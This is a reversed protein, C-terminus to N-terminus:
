QLMYVAGGNQAINMNFDSSSAYLRGGRAIGIAGGQSGNNGSFSVQELTLSSSGVINIAGAQM